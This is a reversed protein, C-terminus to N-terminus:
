ESPIIEHNEENMGLVKSHVMDAEKTEFRGNVIM